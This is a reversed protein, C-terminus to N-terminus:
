ESALDNTFSSIKSDYSSCAKPVGSESSSRQFMCQVFLAKKKGIRTEEALGGKKLAEVTRYGDKVGNVDVLLVKYIRAEGFSGKKGLVVTASWGAANNKESVIDYGYHLYEFAVKSKLDSPTLSDVPYTRADDEGDSKGKGKGATASSQATCAELCPKAEDALSSEKLCKTTCDYEKPDDKKMKTLKAVCLAKDKAAKDGANSSLKEARTCAKEPSMKVLNCSLLPLSIAVLLSRGRMDM